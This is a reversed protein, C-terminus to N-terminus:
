IPTESFERMLEAIFGWTIISVPSLNVILAFIRKGLKEKSFMSVISLPTGFLSLLFTIQVYFSLINDITNINEELTIEICIFVIIGTVTVWGIFYSIRTLLNLSTRDM